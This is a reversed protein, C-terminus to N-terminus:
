ALLSDYKMDLAGNSLVGELPEEVAKLAELFITRLDDTEELGVSIRILDPEVGFSAAWELESYHALVVYPSVLTFNTGLSPGKATQIHDFFAVAQEKTHFTVSLLGGYGGNETRCADYYPRSSVVRPYYVAKVAAHSGLVDCVMEANRNIREIRSVFDRSNREMFIVDEAWYNDEYSKTSVDKLGRYYHGRPNLIASGGMVNCEGTFVKTLSSVVIDSYPLVHVNVFNGITEDVVVAFDYKEGMTKIRKLDPTKLLPNGPFECFLALYRDGKKLREELDDLEEASGQGYFLCGPGFKELIKYTDVYPFGFMISKMPGHTELLAQHVNFISNMGCPYLYVDEETLNAVGRISKEMKASLPTTLDVDGILSGAIRRRIASKANDVFLVDLNRGFREEVFQSSERNEANVKIVPKEASATQQSDHSDSTWPTIDISSGRQYRKPGKCFRQEGNEIPKLITEEVLLGDQFLGHCFEARRSSIGDGSHQWYEKAIRFSDKPLLVVSVSPRAKRLTETTIRGPDLVFNITRLQSAKTALDRAKVFDICRRATKISPFLM